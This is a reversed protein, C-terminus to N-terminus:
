AGQVASEVSKELWRLSEERAGALVAELDQVVPETPLDGPDGFVQEPDAGVTNLLTRIREDQGQGRRLVRVPTKFVISFLTAHFSDTVVHDADRIARLFAELGARQPTPPMPALIDHVKAGKNEAAQAVAERNEADDAMLLYTAVFPEEVVPPVEEALQEWESAPLLMTPDLNVTVERGTIEGIVEAATEERVSIHPFDELMREFHGAMTADLESVGMSAAYAIRQEPAAFDLFDTPCGGRFRPNWVQDSGVVFADFKEALGAGDGPAQIVKDSVEMTSNTFRRLATARAVKAMGRRLKNVDGALVAESAKVVMRGPLTTTLRRRVGHPLTRPRRSATSAGPGSPAAPQAAAAVVVPGEARPGAVGLQPHEHYAYPVNPIVVPRHGMKQLARYLAFNQLRNGINTLDFISVIGVTAM